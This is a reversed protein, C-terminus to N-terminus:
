APPRQRQTGCLTTAADFGDCQRFLLKCIRPIKEIALANTVADINCQLIVSDLRPLIICHQGAFHDFCHPTFVEVTIELNDALRELGSSARDDLRDSYWILAVFTVAGTAIPYLLMNERSPMQRRGARNMSVQGVSPIRADQDHVAESM